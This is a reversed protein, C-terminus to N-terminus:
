GLYLQVGALAAAVATETRLINNGLSASTFQAAVAIAFEEDTWGGEPGVALSVRVPRTAISKEAKELVDRLPRADATEALLIRIGTAEKFSEQPKALPHLVPPRLCRAQQASETLIKEWRAARKTAALLLTKESRAAALPVIAAAGLETAKELAWEFRDFKVVSLFLTVELRSAASVVPEVISFDVADRGVREVRSLFVSQGDSLEYLQGPEARLVRALHHATSGSITASSGTFRAVFFRRRV